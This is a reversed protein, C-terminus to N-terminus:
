RAELTVVSIEPPVRFRVPIISTGIGSSVFLHRGDEVVHGIAYTQGYRSPVIPRGFFPFAVQGGHTHGAITLAVRAPVHPFVDPNHTFLIVPADDTVHSLAGQVDHPGEWFDSVGVLWFRGHPGDIAVADDDLTRIGAAHLAGASRPAGYYWDHNGLVAFVGLPADLGDLVPAIDTPPIFTGGLVNRIVYDGVLLVLEPRTANTEAVIRHLKDLGNWPSGVHLDALVAIRLGAIARPWDDAELRHEVVRLSAPELWFTWLGLVALLALASGGWRRWRRM